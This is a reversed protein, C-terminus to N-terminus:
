DIPQVTEPIIRAHICGPIGQSADNPPRHRQERWGIRAAPTAATVEGVAIDIAVKGGNLRCPRSRRERRPATTTIATSCCRGTRGVATAALKRWAQWVRWRPRMRGGSRRGVAPAPATERSAAPPAPARARPRQKPVPPQCRRARPAIGARAHAATGGSTSGARRARARDDGPRFALMRLLVMEVGTRADPSYPLDRRGILAIQYYLQVDERGLTGALAAIRAADADGEEANAQPVLQAVAIRQLASLMEGLLDSFEVTYEAARQVGDLLAAGDGAALADLLDYVHARDITGLM